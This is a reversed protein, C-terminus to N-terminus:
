GLAIHNYATSSSVCHCQRGTKVNAIMTENVRGLDRAFSFWKQLVVHMRRCCPSLGNSAPKWAVSLHSGGEPCWRDVRPPQQSWDPLVQLRQIAGVGKLHNHGRFQRQQVQTASCGSSKPVQRAEAVTHRFRQALVLICDKVARPPCTPSRMQPRRAIDSTKRKGPLGVFSPPSM